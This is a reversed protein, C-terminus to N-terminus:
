KTNLIRAEFYISDNMMEIFNVAQILNDFSLTRDTETWTSRLNVKVTKAPTESRLVIPFCYGGQTDLGLSTTFTTM